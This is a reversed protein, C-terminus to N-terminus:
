KNNKEVKLLKGLEGMSKIKKLAENIVVNETLVFPVNKYGKLIDFARYQIDFAEEIIRLDSSGNKPAEILILSGLEEEEDEEELDINKAGDNIWEIFSENVITAYKPNLAGSDVQLVVLSNEDAKMLIFKGGGNSAIAIYGSAYKSVQYEINMEVVLETDFIEIGNEVSLGNSKQLLQKYVKPLTYGLSIEVKKIEDLKAPERLEYKRNDLIM